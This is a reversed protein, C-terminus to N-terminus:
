NERDHRYLFKSRTCKQKYVRVRKYLEVITYSYEYLTRTTYLHVVCMLNLLVLQNWNKQENNYSYVKADVRVKRITCHVLIDYM